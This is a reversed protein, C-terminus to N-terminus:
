TLIYGWTRGVARRWDYVYWSIYLIIALHHRCFTTGYTVMTTSLELITTDTLSAAMFSLGVEVCVACRLFPLPWKYM